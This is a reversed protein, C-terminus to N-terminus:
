GMELVQFSVSDSMNEVWATIVNGYLPDSMVVQSASSYYVSILNVSGRLERNANAVEAEGEWQAKIEMLGMGELSTGELIRGNLAVNVKAM